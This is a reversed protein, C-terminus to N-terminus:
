IRKFLQKLTKEKRSNRKTSFRQSLHKITTKRGLLMRGLTLIPVSKHYHVSMAVNYPFFWGVLMM